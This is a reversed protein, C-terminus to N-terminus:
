SIEEEVGPIESSPLEGISFAKQAAQLVIERIKQKM